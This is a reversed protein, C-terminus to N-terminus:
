GNGVEHASENGMAVSVAPSNDSRNSDGEDPNEINDTEVGAQVIEDRGTDHTQSLDLECVSGVASDTGIGRDESHQFSVNIITIHPM